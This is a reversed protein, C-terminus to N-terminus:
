HTWLTIEQPLNLPTGHPLSQHRVTTGGGLVRVRLGIGELWYVADAVLLGRVDPVSRRLIHIPALRLTDDAVARTFVWDSAAFEDPEVAMDYWQAWTRVTALPLRQRDIWRAPRWPPSDTQSPVEFFGRSYMKEAIEKVVPAAVSGGSYYVGQPDNIVVMVTYRPNEAPFFGVFSARYRNHQYGQQTHLWVTGTKGAVPVRGGRIRRATGKRVVDRMLARLTDIVAPSAIQEVLVETEFVERRGDPYVAEEAFRPVVMKGGNAVANYFTLIQIPTLKLGYGFAMWPLTTGSWLKDEPSPLFPPAEGPIPVGLRQHFRLRRFHELFRQPRDAYHEFVLRGFAVNSSYIFAERLTIVRRPVNLGDRITRDFIRYAGHRVDVSDSTRLRADELLILLSAAKITSGPELAEGVAYNRDDRYSSDPRRTADALARIAGTATEMVVVTGWQARHRKVGRLLAEEAIQQIHLDVTTRVAAGRQPMVVYSGDVPVWVGGFTKKMRQLGRTGVLYRDFGGEIGVKVGEHVYGLLRRAVGHINLRRYRVRRILGVIYNPGEHRFIPFKRVAQWDYYSLGSKIRYYRHKRRYGRWLLKRYEEATRDKFYDALAKALADVESRFIEETLGEAGFDFYLDYVPVSTVLLRGQADLLDGRIPDVKREQVEYGRAYRRWKADQRQVRMVQYVTAALAGLIGLLILLVRWVALPRQLTPPTEEAANM